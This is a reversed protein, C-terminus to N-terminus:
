VKIFAQIDPYIGSLDVVDSIVDLLSVCLIQIWMDENSTIIKVAQKIYCVGIINM